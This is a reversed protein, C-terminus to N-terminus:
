RNWIDKNPLESDAIKSTHWAFRCRKALTDFHLPSLETFLAHDPFLTIFFYAWRASAKMNFLKKDHKNGFLWSLTVMAEATGNYGEEELISLYSHALTFDNVERLKLLFVSWAQKSGFRDAQHLNDLLNKEYVSRMGAHTEQQALREYCDAIKSHIDQLDHQYAHYDANVVLRYPTKEQLAVQQHLIEAARQFYNLATVPDYPLLSNNDPNNYELAQLYYACPLNRQAGLEALLAFHQPLDLWDIDKIASQWNNNYELAAVSDLVAIGQAEDKEFGFLGAYQFYGSYIRAAYFETQRANQHLFNYIWWTDPFDRLAFKLAYVTYYHSLKLNEAVARQITYWLADLDSLDNYCTLLWELAHHRSSQSHARQAIDEAKAIFTEREPPYELEKIRLDRCTDWWILLELHEREAACLHGCTPSALFERIGEHSGGWRPMQFPIYEDLAYFARPFIALCVSLWYEAEADGKCDPLVAPRPLNPCAADELSLGSFAMLTEMEQPSDQHYKALVQMLPQGTFDTGELFEILWDPQGFVKTNTSTLLAVMWQRPECDIANLAAIVMRENCAGACVWMAASTEEAWGYSRYLWARHNWYQAEALWAHTSRPRAHQWAKILALGQPGADVLADMDYFRNCMQTWALFYRKEAERSTFSDTLAQNFRADLEDYRAERLLVPINAIHWVRQEDTHPLKTNCMERMANLIREDQVM